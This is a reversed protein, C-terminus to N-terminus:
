KIRCKINYNKSISSWAGKKVIRCITDVKVGTEKSIKPYSIKSDELLKCVKYIQASTYKANPHNEGHSIDTDPFKYFDSIQTWVKKKKIKQINDESVMTLKAIEKPYLGDELLKCVQHIQDDYYRSNVNNSGFRYNIKPFNYDKSIHTWENGKKIQYLTARSIGTMKSIDRPKLKPNEM